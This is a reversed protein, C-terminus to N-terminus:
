MKSNEHLKKVLALKNRWQNFNPKRKDRFVAQVGEGVDAHHDTVATRAAIDELSTAWNSDAAVYISRKLFRMAVQPGDALEVALEMAKDYLQARPVVEHCLGLSYAEGASVIRKRMMFDMAKAVGMIQVLLYQGGEDPLLGFRLTASGVKADDAFIRFDAALAMSFGTQIAFGQVAAIVIKDLNRIATNVSQSLVRLGNYTGIPSDHGHKIKPVLGKMGEVGAGANLDDGASFAKGSGTLIVVGVHNDMQAQAMCELFDRKIMQNMGNLKDPRNFTIVLIGRKVNVLEATFGALQQKNAFFSSM